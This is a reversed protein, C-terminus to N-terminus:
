RSQAAPLELVAARVARSELDGASKGVMMTKDLSNFSKVRQM